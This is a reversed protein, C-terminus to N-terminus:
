RGTRGARTPTSLRAIEALIDPHPEFWEGHLRHAAFRRHYEFEEVRKGPVTALLEVQVPSQGRLIALRYEIDGTTGIKIPGCSAQIFYVVHKKPRRKVLTVCLTPGGQRRTKRNAVPTRNTATNRSQVM